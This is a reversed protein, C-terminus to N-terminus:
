LDLWETGDISVQVGGMISIVEPDGAATSLSWPGSPCSNLQPGETDSSVTAAGEWGNLNFGTIQNRLRAEEEFVGQITNTTTREREQTNDNNANTCEWSVETVVTSNVRFQVLDANDQLQKNNWGYVIQVDGKGVFGVGEDDYTVAAFSTSAFAMMALTTLIKKRM